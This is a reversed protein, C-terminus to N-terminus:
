GNASTRGDPAVAADALTQVESLLATSAARARHGRRHGRCRRHGHGYVVLHGFLGHWATASRRRTAVPRSTDKDIPLSEGTLAAEEIRLSKAEILRLDAPVRDGSRLCCSTARCWYMPRRPGGSVTACSWPAHPSLMKRIAELAQEAKGEQIFGIFANIVVVGFIVGSDIWHGLLATVGGAALLV